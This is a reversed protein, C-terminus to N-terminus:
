HGMEALCPLTSPWSPALPPGIPNRRRGAILHLPSPGPLLATPHHVRKPAAPLFLEGFSHTTCHPTTPWLPVATPAADPPPPRYSPTRPPQVCLRPASPMTLNIPSLGSRSTRPPEAIAPVTTCHPAFPPPPLFPAGRHPHAGKIAALPPSRRHRPPPSVTPPSVAATLGHARALHCRGNDFLSQRPRPATPGLSQCEPGV